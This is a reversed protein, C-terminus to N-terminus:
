SFKTPIQLHIITWHIQFLDFVMDKSEDGFYAFSIM